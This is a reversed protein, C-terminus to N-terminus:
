PREKQLLKKLERIEKRLEAVEEMLHGLQWQTMSITHYTGDKHQVAIRPEVEPYSIGGGGAGMSGDSLRQLELPRNEGAM